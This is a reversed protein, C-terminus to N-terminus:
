MIYYLNLLKYCDLVDDTKTSQFYTRFLSSLMCLHLRTSYFLINRSYHDDLHDNDEVSFQKKHM